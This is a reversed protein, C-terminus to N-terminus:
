GKAVGNKFRIIYSQTKRGFGIELEPDSRVLELIKAEPLGTRKVIRGVTTWEFKSSGIVDRIVDIDKRNGNPPPVGTAAESEELLAGAEQISEYERKAEAIEGKLRKMEDAVEKRDIEVQKRQERVEKELDLLSGRARRVDWGFFAVGIGAYITLLIVGTAGVCKFFTITQSDVLAPLPDAFVGPSAVAVGLAATSILILRTNM